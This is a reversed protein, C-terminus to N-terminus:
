EYKRRIRSLNEISMGLYSAIVGIPARRIIEIKKNFLYEYRESTSYFKLLYAHASLSNYNHEAILRGIREMRPHRSYLEQLDQYQIAYIVSDELLEINNQSPQRSVFSAFDVLFEGDIVIDTTYEKDENVYYLRALGKEVFYLHDCVRGARHLLTKRHLEQRQLRSNIDTVLDEPLTDFKNLFSIFSSSAM